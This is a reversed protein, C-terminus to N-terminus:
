QDSSSDLETIPPAPQAQPSGTMEPARSVFPTEPASWGRLFEVCEEPTQAIHMLQWVNEPILKEEVSRHVQEIFPGWYNYLNCLVIPKIHFGIQSLVMTETLEELSGLGGPLCIYADGGEELGRKRSRMTSVVKMDVVSEDLVGRTIFRDLIVARIQGNHALVGRSLAGMLGMDGGGYVVIWGQLALLRGLQEAGDHLRQSAQPSSGAYVTVRGIRRPVHPHNEREAIVPHRQLFRQRLLECHEALDLGYANAVEALCLMVQALENGLAPLPEEREEPGGLTHDELHDARELLQECHELM